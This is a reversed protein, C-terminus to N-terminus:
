QETKKRQMRSENDQQLNCDEKDLDQWITESEIIIFDRWIPSQLSLFGLASPFYTYWFEIIGIIVYSM